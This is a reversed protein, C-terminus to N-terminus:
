RRRGGARERREAEDLIDQAITSTPEAARAEARAKEREDNYKKTASQAERESVERMRNEHIARSVEATPAVKVPVPGAVYAQGGPHASDIEFLAVQHGGDPKAALTSVVYIQKAEESKEAGFEAARAEALDRDERERVAEEQKKRQEAAAQEQAERIDREAKTEQPM